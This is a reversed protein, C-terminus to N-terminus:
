PSMKCRRRPRAHNNRTQICGDWSWNPIITRCIPFKAAHANRPWRVCPPLISLTAFPRQMESPTAVSELLTSNERFVREGFKQLVVRSVHRVFDPNLPRIPATIVSLVWEFDAHDTLAIAEALPDLAELLIYSAPIRIRASAAFVPEVISTRCSRRRAVHIEAVRTGVFEVRSSNTWPRDNEQAAAIEAPCDNRERGHRRPRPAGTKKFLIPGRVLVPMAVRKQIFHLGCICPREGCIGLSRSRIIRTRSMSRFTSRTWFFKRSATTFECSRTPLDSM